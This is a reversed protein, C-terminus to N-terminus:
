KVPELIGLERIGLNVRRGLKTEIAKRIEMNDYDVYFDESAPNFSKFYWLLLMMGCISITRIKIGEVRMIDKVVQWYGQRENPLQVCVVLPANDNKSVGYRSNLVAIDDLIGRSADLTDKGFEVEVAGFDNDVTSYIVDMRTYVDGIRRMASKNGLGILLNRTVTNHYQSKLSSLKTKIEFLIKKNESVLSGQKRINSLMKIQELQMILNKEIPPLVKYDEGMKENVIFSFGNFYIAGIPCRSACLGCNFCTASDIKVKGSETNWSIANVPCVSTGKDYPFNKLRSCSIEQESFNMCAPNTCGICAALIQRNGVHIKGPAGPSFIIKEITGGVELMYIKLQEHYKRFIQM